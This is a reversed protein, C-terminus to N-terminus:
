KLRANVEAREEDTARSYLECGYCWNEFKIGCYRKHNLPCLLFLEKLREEATRM